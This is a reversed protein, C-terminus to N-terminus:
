YKRIKCEACEFFENKIGGKIEQWIDDESTLGLYYDFEVNWGESMKEKCLPCIM